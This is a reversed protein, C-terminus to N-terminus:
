YENEQNLIIDCSQDDYFINEEKCYICEYLLYNDDDDLKMFWDGKELIEGCRKCWIKNLIKYYPIGIPNIFRYIILHLDSPIKKIIDM